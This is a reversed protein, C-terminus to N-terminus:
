SYQEKNRIAYLSNNITLLERYILLHPQTSLCYFYINAVM